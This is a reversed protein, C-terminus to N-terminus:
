RWYNEYKKLNPTNFTFEVPLSNNENKGINTRKEHPYQEQKHQWILYEMRPIEECSSMSKDQLHGIERGIHAQEPIEESLHKLM